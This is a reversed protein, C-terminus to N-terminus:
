DFTCMKNNLRDKMFSGNIIQTISNTEKAMKDFM